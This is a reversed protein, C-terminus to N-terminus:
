RFSLRWIALVRTEGTDGMGTSIFWKDTLSITATSYTESSYPDTDSLSFNVRELLGVLPKLQNGFRVRGHLFERALLQMAMSSAASPDELGSTTTGTALLTMIENEPLPPNSTLVLQPDSLRGYAYVTVQYPRPEASGRIELIPDFGSDPRFSVTGSKVSLTSFPLSAKFNTVKFAGDPAPTGLTGRVRMAGTVEGTALNGRVLFPDEMRVSVDVGWDRFPEPIASGPAKPTDVKPLSAAAPGTFPRGIPLIEIDRYFIGDVAGVSGSLVSREWTGQLRLDANARVIMLENRVVPLQRGVVRLNITGLKGETIEVSGDGQVTGAAVSAQLKRLVVRDMAFDVSAAVKEIAPFESDKLKMSAGNLDVMGRIEPKGVKGAVTVNGTLIGALREAPTVLSAFRSLDLRPLDVRAEIAEEKIEEPAEAWRAPKFPMAAKLVAPAFDPATASGNVELREDQGSIELLLDAPPLSPQAPSRLDRAEIKAKLVPMGYTGSLDISLQGTSKPDLQELAPVWPKLNVLPLVRSNIYVSVPRTDKALTEKWKSFDEPVPLSASGEALEDTGRSWLFRRLDLVGQSLAAEVAVTQDGAQVRIGKTEFSGPWDYAAGGIATITDVGERAWNAQTFEVAGKHKGAKVEGSGKWTGSVEGTGGPKVKAIALWREIRTTTFGDLTASGEYAGNTTQYSAAARLGDLSVEATLPQEPAWRGKAMMATAEKDDVPRLNVEAEAAVLKNDSFSIAYGGSASSGPVPATPDIAPVKPALDRIVAPIDEVAFKGKADGLAFRTGQREIPMAGDLSLGSGLKKAHAVLTVDKAGLTADLSLQSAKWDEFSVEDLLLGAKGTAAKPDPLIGDVELALSTLKAKAPIEIGFRGLTEDVQLAGETLDLKAAKFGPSSTLLFVAEDLHLNGEVAPEGGDPLQVVLNSVGIGPLPDLRTIALEDAKWFIEATQGKWVQGKADTFDGLELQILDAGAAHSIRSKELKLEPKGGRTATLSLDKAELEVPLVRGRVTRLTEVLKKLDLPQDPESPDRPKPPADLRLETHVGEIRLGKIEGRTLGRWEYNPEIKDIVVSALVGDSELKLDSLSIGGVLNGGLKFNGKLGAKELYHAAVKPGIWRLGPGNLWLLFAVLVCGLIVWFRLWRRRKPPKPATQTPNEPEPLAGM